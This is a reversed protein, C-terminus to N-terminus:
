QCPISTQGTPLMSSLSRALTPQGAPRLSIASLNGYSLSTITDSPYQTQIGISANWFITLMTGSILFSTGREQVTPAASPKLTALMTTSMTLGNDLMEAGGGASTTADEIPASFSFTIQGTNTVTTSAGIARCNAITNGVMTLPAATTTLTLM